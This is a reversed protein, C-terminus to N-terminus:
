AIKYLMLTYNETSAYWGRKICWENFKIYVDIDYRKDNYIMNDLGSIPNKDKDTYPVDSGNKLWLCNYNCIDNSFELGDKIELTPFRKQLALIIQSKTM